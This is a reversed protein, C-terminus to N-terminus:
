EAEATTEKEDGSSSEEEKEMLKINEGDELEGIMNLLEMGETLGDGSIECSYDSRSGVTVPIKKAVTTGEEKGAEYTFVYSNDDDDTHIMDYSVTFVDGKREYVIKAKATMGVKISDDPNDVAVKVDFNIAGNASTKATPSISLVKGSYEKDGAANCTVIVEMGVDILNIDMEKVSFDLELSDIDEVVFLLGAGSSGVEAKVETITGDATAKVECDELQKKLNDLNLQDLETASLEHNKEASDKLKDLSELITKETLALSEKAKELSDEADTVRKEYNDLEITKGDYALSLNEEANALAKKCEDVAKELTTQKDQYLLETSTFAENRAIQAKRLAESTEPSSDAEQAIKADSLTKEYQKMEPYSEMFIVTKCDQLEKQADKLKDELSTVTQRLSVLQADKNEALLKKAQEFDAKADKVSKEAAEVSRRATVLEPTEGAEYKKLADQYAKDSESLSYETSTGKEEMLTQQQLIANEISTTDLLALLDGEKVKDGVEVFIEEVATTGSSYVKVSNSSNITGSATVSNILEGKELLTTEYTKGINGSCGTFLTGAVAVAAALALVKTKM